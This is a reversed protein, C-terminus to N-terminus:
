DIIVWTGNGEKEYDAQFINVWAPVYFGSALIRGADEGELEEPGIFVVVINVPGDAPSGEPDPAWDVEYEAVVLTPFEEIRVLEFRDFDNVSNIQDIAAEIDRWVARFTQDVIYREDTNSSYLALVADSEGSEWAKGWQEAVEVARESPAQGTEGGDDDDDGCGAVVLLSAILLVLLRRM